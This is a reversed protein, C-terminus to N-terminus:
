SQPPRDDQVAQTVGDPVEEVWFRDGSNFRVDGAILHAVLNSPRFTHQFSIGEFETSRAKIDHIIASIESFDDVPSRLKRIVTLSDGEVVARRFGQRLGRSPKFREGLSGNLVVSYSVTSVCMIIRDVWTPDFGM